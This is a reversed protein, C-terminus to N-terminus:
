MHMSERKTYRDHAYGLYDFLIDKENQSDAHIVLAWACYYVHSVYMYHESRRLLVEVLEDDGAPFYQSLPYEDMGILQNVYMEVFEKREVDTPVNDWHFIAKKIDSTYDAAYECFHNGIDWAIDGFGVYDYDILRVSPESGLSERILINGCQLDGHLLADGYPSPPFLDDMSAITDTLFVNVWGYGSFVPLRDQIYSCWSHLRDRLTPIKSQIGFESCYVAHTAQAHFRAMAKAVSPMIQKMKLSGQVAEHGHLFEEVRGNDFQVLYKPGISADSLIRFVLNEVNRDVVRTCHHLCLRVIVASGGDEEKWVKFVSNTMSGAFRMSKIRCVDPWICQLVRIISSAGQADQNTTPGSSFVGSQRRQQQYVPNGEGVRSLDEEDVHVHVTAHSDSM